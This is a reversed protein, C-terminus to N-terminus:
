CLPHNCQPLLGERAFSPNWQGCIRAHLSSTVLCVAAPTTKSSGSGKNGKPSRSGKPSKPRGPSHSKKRGPSRSSKKGKKGSSTSRALTAQRPKGSPGDHSFKCKAGRECRGRKWFICEKKGKGKPSQPNREQHPVDVVAIGRLSQPVIERPLFRM